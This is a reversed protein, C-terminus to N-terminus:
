SVTKTMASYIQLRASRISAKAMVVLQRTMHLLVIAVILSLRQATLIIM